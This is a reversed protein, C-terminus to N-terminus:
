EHSDGEKNTSTRSDFRFLTGSTGVLVGGSVPAKEPPTHEPPTQAGTVNQTFDDPQTEKPRTKIPSM